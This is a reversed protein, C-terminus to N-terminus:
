SVAQSVMVMAPRILRGNLSYGKQMVEIVTNPEVGDRPQMSMAQHLEPNFIEGKPDYQEVGFKQMVDSLMKLTLQTGERLKAVDASADQSAAYGLELSDCVSLLENVFKDLAYKHAKELDQAHRRKLNELDAHARMMQDQHEDAKQQAAALLKALEEASREAQVEAQEVGAEAMSADASAELTSEMGDVTAKSEAGSETQNDTSADMDANPQAAAKTDGQQESM